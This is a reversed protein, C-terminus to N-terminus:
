CGQRQSWFFLLVYNLKKDILNSDASFTKM